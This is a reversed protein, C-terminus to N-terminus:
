PRNHAAPAAAQNPAFVWFRMLLYSTITIPIVVVIWAIRSGPMFVDAVRGVGGALVLTILSAAYWRHRTQPRLRFTWRSQLFYSVTNAVIFAVVNAVLLSWGFGRVSVWVAGLHLATVLAGSANFRVVQWLDM